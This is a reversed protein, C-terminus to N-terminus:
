AAMSSNYSSQSQLQETELPSPNTAGNKHVDGAAVVAALLLILFVSFCIAFWKKPVEMTM